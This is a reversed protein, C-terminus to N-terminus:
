ILPVFAIDEASLKQLTYLLLCVAVFRFECKKILYFCSKRPSLSELAVYQLTVLYEAIIYRRYICLAHERLKGNEPQLIVHHM